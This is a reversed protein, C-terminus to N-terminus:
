IEVVLMRKMLELSIVIYMIFGKILIHATQVDCM